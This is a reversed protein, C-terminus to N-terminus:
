QGQGIEEHAKWLVWGEGAWIGGMGDGRVARPRRWHREGLRRCPVEARQPVWQGTGCLQADDGDQVVSSHM